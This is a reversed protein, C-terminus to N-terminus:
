GEEDADPAWDPLSEGPVFVVDVGTEPHVTHVYDTAVRPQVVPSPSAESVKLAREQEREEQLPRQRPM